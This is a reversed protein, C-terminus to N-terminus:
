WIMAGPLEVSFSNSLIIKKYFRTKKPSSLDHTFDESDSDGFETQCGSRKHRGHEAWNLPYVM